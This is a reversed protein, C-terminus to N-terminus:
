DIIIKIITKKKSPDTCELSYMGKPLNPDVNVEMNGDNGNFYCTQNKVLQGAYNMLRIDYNGRDQNLLQLHIINNNIPNPFVQVLKNSNMVLKVIASYKTHGNLDNIRLRYFNAGNYPNVDLWSYNLSNNMNGTATVSKVTGFHIGDASKEVDYTTINQENEVEWSTQISKGSIQARFSTLTVPLVM